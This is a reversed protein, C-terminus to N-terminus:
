SFTKKRQQWKEFQKHNLKYCTWCKCFQKVNPNNSQLSIILKQFPMNFFATFHLLVKFTNSAASELFATQETHEKRRCNKNCKLWLESTNWQTTKLAKQFHNKHSLRYDRVDTSMNMWDTQKSSKSSTFINGNKLFVALIMCSNRSCKTCCNKPYFENCCVLM